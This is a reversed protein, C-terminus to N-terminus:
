LSFFIYCGFKSDFFLFIFIMIQRNIPISVNPNDHIIFVSLMFLSQIIYFISFLIVLTILDKYFYIKPTHRACCCCFANFSRAIQIYIYVCHLCLCWLQILLNEVSVYIGISEYKNLEQGFILFQFFIYEFHFLSLFFRLDIYLECNLEHIRM